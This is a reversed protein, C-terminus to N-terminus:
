HSSVYVILISYVCYVIDTTIINFHDIVSWEDWSFRLPADHTQRHIILCYIELLNDDWSTGVARALSVALRDNLPRLIRTYTCVNSTGYSFRPHSPLLLNCYKLWSAKELELFVFVFFFFGNKSYTSEITTGFQSVFNRSVFSRFPTSVIFLYLRIKYIRSM